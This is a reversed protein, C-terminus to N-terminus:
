LASDKRGMERCQASASQVGTWGDGRGPVVALVDTGAKAVSFELQPSAHRTDYACSSSWHAFSMWLLLFVTMM